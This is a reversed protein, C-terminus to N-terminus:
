RGSAKSRVGMRADSMEFAGPSNESSPAASGVPDYFRLTALFSSNNANEAFNIVLEFKTSQLGPLEAPNADKLIKATYVGCQRYAVNFRRSNMVSSPPAAAVHGSPARRRVRRRPDWKEDEIEPFPQGVWRPAHGVRSAILDWIQAMALLDARGESNARGSDGASVM